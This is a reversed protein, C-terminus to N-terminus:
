EDSQSKVRSSFKKKSHSGGKGIQLEAFTHSGGNVHAQVLSNWTATREVSSVTNFSVLSM